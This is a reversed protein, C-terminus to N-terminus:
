DNFRPAADEFTVEGGLRRHLALIGRLTPQPAASVKEIEDGGLRGIDVLNAAELPSLLAPDDHQAAPRVYPFDAPAALTAARDWLVIQAEVGHRALWRDIEALVAVRDPEAPVTGGVDSAYVVRRVEDPLPSAFLEERTCASVGAGLRLLGRDVLDRLTGTWRSSGTLLVPERAVLVPRRTTKRVEEFHEIAPARPDDIIRSILRLGLESPHSGTDVYLSAADPHAIVEVLSVASEGVVAEVDPLNWTPHRYGAETTYKGARRNLYERGALSWFLFRCSPNAQRISRLTATARELLRADNERSILAPDIGRVADPDDPHVLSRNGIRLDPVIFLADTDSSAFPAETFYPAFTATGSQYWWAIERSPREVQGTTYANELSICHSPGAVVLRQAGTTM